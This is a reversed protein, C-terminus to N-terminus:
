DSPDLVGPILCPHPRGNRTRPCTGSRPGTPPRFMLWRRETEDTEHNATIVPADDRQIASDPQSRTRIRATEARKRGNRATETSIPGNRSMRDRPEGILQARIAMDDHPQTESRDQRAPACAGSEATEPVGRRNLPDVSPGHARGHDTRGTPCIDDDHARRARRTPPRGSLQRTPHAPASCNRRSRWRARWGTRRDPKASRRPEARDVGAAAHSCRMGERGVRCSLKNVEVGTLCRHPSFRDAEDSRDSTSWRTPESCREVM